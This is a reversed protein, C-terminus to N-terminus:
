EEPTRRSLSRPVDFTVRGEKDDIRVVLDVEETGARLAQRGADDSLDFVVWFSEYAYDREFVGQLAPMRRLEPTSLGRVPQDEPADIPELFAVWDRPIVGSGERPDIEVLFVADGASEADAVLARTEDDTLIQRLQRLRATARIVEPSLWTARLKYNYARETGTVRFDFVGGVRGTERARRGITTAQEANWQLYEDRDGGQASATQVVFLVVCVARLHRV